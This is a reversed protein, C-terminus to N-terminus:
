HSKRIGSFVFEVISNKNKEFETSIGQRIYPVELGKLSYFIIMATLEINVRKFVRKAVGEELICRILEIEKVDIKRRTREVEYIDHFFDARLSGNRSVADKVADLHTIIHKTLKEEPEANQESIVCLKDLIISLENDIVARYIDEKSKFYTYLTRRGKKSAEAIDNMTVNKKGHKAFLERAVEILKKKTKTNKSLM